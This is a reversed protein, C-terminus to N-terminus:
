GQLHSSSLPAAGRGRTLRGARARLQARSGTRARGGGGLDGVASFCERTCRLPAALAMSRRVPTARPETAAVARNSYSVLLPAGV